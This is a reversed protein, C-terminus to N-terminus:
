LTQLLKGSEPVGESAVRDGSRKPETEISIARVLIM